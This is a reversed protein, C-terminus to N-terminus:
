PDKGSWSMDSIGISIMQILQSMRNPPVKYKRRRTLWVCLSGLHAHGHQAIKTPDSAKQQRQMKNRIPREQASQGRTM